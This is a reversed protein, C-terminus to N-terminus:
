NKGLNQKVENVATKADEFDPNLKVAEEFHSLAGQLDGYYELISGKLFHAKENYPDIALVKDLDPVANNFDDLLYFCFGRNYYAQTFQPDALLAIGYDSIALKLLFSFQDDQTPDSISQAQGLFFNGSNFHGIPHLSDVELLRDNIEMAKAADKYVDMQINYLQALSKVFGPDIELSQDYLEIAQQYRGQTQQLFGKAFLYTPELSDFRIATNYYKEAEEFENRLFYIQGMMYFTEPDLSGFDAALKFNDLAAQDENQVYMYFGKLHYLEPAEFSIAMAKEVDRIAAQTNGSQYHILSRQSLLNWDNPSQEVLRNYYVIKGEYTNTDLTMATSDPANGEPEGTNGCGTGFAIILLFLTIMGVWVFNQRKM